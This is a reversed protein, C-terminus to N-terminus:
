GALDADDYALAPYASADAAARRVKTAKFMGGRRREAICAALEAAAGRSPARVLLQTDLPSIGRRQVHVLYPSVGGGSRVIRRVELRGFVHMALRQRM